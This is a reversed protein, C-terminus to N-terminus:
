GYVLIAGFHGALGVLIAALILLSFYASSDQVGKRRWAVTALMTVVSSIAFIFHILPPGSWEYGNLFFGLLGSGAAFISSLGGALICWWGAKRADPEKKKWGFVELFAGFLFLAIPFHVILPHFGHKPILGGSSSAPAQVPAATGEPTSKPDGPLTGAEIEDKNSAGDGDSDEGEIAQFNAATVPGPKAEKVARGYPNWQPPSTHCILCGKEALASKPAYTKKFSELIDPNGFAAGAMVAMTLIVLSRKM